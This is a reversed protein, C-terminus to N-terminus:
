RCLIDRKIIFKLSLYGPSALELLIKKWRVRLPTPSYDIVQMCLLTNDEVIRGRRMEVGLSEQRYLYVNM